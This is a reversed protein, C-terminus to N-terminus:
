PEVGGLAAGERSHAIADEIAEYRNLNGPSAQALQEALWNVMGFCQLAAEYVDGGTDLMDHFHAPNALQGTETTMHGWSGAM